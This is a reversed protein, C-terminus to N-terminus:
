RSGSQRRGELLPDSPLLRRWPDATVGLTEASCQGPGAQGRDRARLRSVQGHPGHFLCALTIQQERRSAWHLAWDLSLALVQAPHLLLHSPVSEVSLHGASVWGWEIFEPTRHPSELAVSHMTSLLAGAGSGALEHHSGLLHLGM